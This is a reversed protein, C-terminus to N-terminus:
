LFRVEVDWQIELYIAEQLTQSKFDRLVEELDPIRSDDLVVGYAASADTSRSGDSMRFAGEVYGLFSWGGFHDYLDSKVVDIEATLDRGDNDMLPLYFLAKVQAM